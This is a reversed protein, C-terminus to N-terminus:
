GPPNFRFVRLIEQCVEETKAPKQVADPSAALVKLKEERTGNRPEDWFECALDWAALEVKSRNERKQEIQDQPLNLALGFDM